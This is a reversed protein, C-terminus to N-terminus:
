AAVLSFTAELTYAGNVAACAYVTISYKGPGFEGELTLSEGNDPGADQDKLTKGGPGVLRFAQDVVTQGGALKVVIKPVLVTAGQETAPVTVDHTFSHNVGSTKAVCEDQQAGVTYTGQFKKYVQPLETGPAPGASTVNLLVSTANSRNDASTVTLTVTFTGAGYAHEVVPETSTNGDGLDWAFSSAGTSGNGDLTLNAGAMALISGNVPGVETGNYIVRLIAVLDSRNGEAGQTGGTGTTAGATGSTTAGSPGGADGFCGALSGVLLLVTAAIGPFRMRMLWPADSKPM